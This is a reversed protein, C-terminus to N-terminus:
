RQAKEIPPFLKVENMFRQMLVISMEKLPNDDPNGSDIKTNFQRLQSSQMAGSVLCYSCAYYVIALDAFSPTDLSETASGTTTAEVWDSFYYVDLYKGDLNESTLSIYGNPYEMWMPLSASPAPGSRITMHPLWYSNDPSYLADVLYVDDPLAVMSGSTLCQAVKKKPLWPVIAKMGANIGDLLLQDSFTISSVKLYQRVRQHVDLYKSM